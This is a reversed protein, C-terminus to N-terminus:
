IEETEEPFIGALLIFFFLNSYIGKFLLIKIDIILDQFISFFRIDGNYRELYNVKLGSLFLKTLFLYNFSNSSALFLYSFSYECNQFVGLIHPRIYLWSLPPDHSGLIGIEFMALDRSVLYLCPSIWSGLKLCTSIM